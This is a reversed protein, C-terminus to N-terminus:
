SDPNKGAPAKAYAPESGELLEHIAKGLCKKLDHIATKM